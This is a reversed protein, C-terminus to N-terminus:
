ITVTTSGPSMNRCLRRCSIEYNLVDVTVFFLGEAVGTPSVHYRCMGSGTQLKPVFEIASDIESPSDVTPFHRGIWHESADANVLLM